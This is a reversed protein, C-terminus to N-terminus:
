LSVERKIIDTKIPFTLYKIEFYFGSNLTAKISQKLFLKNANKM